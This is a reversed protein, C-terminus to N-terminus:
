KIEIGDLNDSRVQWAGRVDKDALECQAPLKGVDLHVAYLTMLTPIGMSSVYHQCEVTVYRVRTLAQEKVLFSHASRVIDVCLSDLESRLQPVTWTETRTASNIDIPREHIVQITIDLAKGDGISSPRVSRQSMDVWAPFGHSLIESCFRINEFFERHVANFDLHLNTATQKFDRYTLDPSLQLAKVMHDAFVDYKKETALMLMALRMRLSSAPNPAPAPPLSKCWALAASYKKEAGSYDAKVCLRDGESMLSRAILYHVAFYGGIAGIAFVIGIAILYKEVFLEFKSRATWPYGSPVRRERRM